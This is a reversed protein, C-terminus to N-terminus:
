PWTPGATATSTAAPWGWARRTAAEGRQRRRGVLEGVEEFRFGGLNRFLFNASQDNAVFLDIAGTTTSTPRSWAWGGGTATSSARRQRSTSSGAATTASSTTPCAVPIARRVASLGHRGSRPDDCCLTPARRGLRLYHCVYLDLDGDGDLDAFAASTPWDRDGGLGARRRSTRSPATAGTATSPTPRWRTVFLDPHGDNDYDGVAVGHGYGGAFAPSARPPRHRGRVHRRGQQPLAPRWRPPEPGPRPSPGARSATSTSGATATTTSCASAAAWRRPSSDPRAHATTSSSACAPPRPTTASPLPRGSLGRARRARHREPLLAGLDCLAPRRVDGRAPPCPRPRERSRRM